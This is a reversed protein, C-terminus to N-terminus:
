QDHGKEKHGHRRGFRAGPAEGSVEREVRRGFRRAHEVQNGFGGAHVERGALPGDRAGM